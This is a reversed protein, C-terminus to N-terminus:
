DGIYALDFDKSILGIMANDTLLIQSAEEVTTVKHLSVNNLIDYLKKDPSPNPVKVAYKAYPDSDDLLIMVNLHNLDIVDSLKVGVKGHGENKLCSALTDGNETWNRNDFNYILYRTSFDANTDIRNVLTAIADQESMGEEVAHVVAPHNRLTHYINYDASDKDMRVWSTVPSYKVRGNEDTSKLIKMKLCYEPWEPAEYPMYLNGDADFDAETAAQNVDTIVHVEPLAGNGDWTYTSTTEGAINKRVNAVLYYRGQEEPAIPLREELNKALIDVRASVADTLVKVDFANAVKRLDSPQVRDYLSLVGDKEVADNNYFNNMNIDLIKDGLAEFSLDDNTSIFLLEDQEGNDKTLVLSADEDFSADKIADSIGKIKENNISFDIKGDDSSTIHISDDDSTFNIESEIRNPEAQEEPLAQGEYGSIVDAKGVVITAGNGDTPRVSVDGVIKGPDVMERGTQEDIYKIDFASMVNKAVIDDTNALLHDHGDITAQIHQDIDEGSHLGRSMVKLTDKSNGLHITESKGYVTQPIEDNKFSQVVENMEPEDILGNEITEDTYEFGIKNAYAVYNENYINKNRLYDNEKDAKDDALSQLNDNSDEIDSQCNEIDTNVQAFQENLSNIRGEITEKERLAEFLTTNEFSSVASNAEYVASLKESQADVLVQHNSVITPKLENTIHDKTLTCYAVVSEQTSGSLIDLVNIMKDFANLADEYSVNNCNMNKLFEYDENNQLFSDNFDDDFYLTEDLATQLINADVIENDVLAQAAELEQQAAQATDRLGNLTENLGAINNNALDLSANAEQKQAEIESKTTNLNELEEELSAHNTNAAEIQSDLENIERVTDQLSNYDLILHNYNAFLEDYAEAEQKAAIYEPNQRFGIDSYDEVHSIIGRLHGEEDKIGIGAPAVIVDNFTKVGSIDQNTSRNVYGDTSLNIDSLNALYTEVGDIYVKFHKYEKDFVNKSPDSKTKILLQSNINGLAISDENAKELLIKGDKSKILDTTVGKNAIVDRSAEVDTRSVLRLADILRSAKINKAELSSVKESIVESTGAEIRGAVVSETANINKSNVSVADVDSLSKIKGAILQGNVDLARTYTDGEFRASGRSTINETSINESDINTSNLNGADVTGAEVTTSNVTQANVTNTNETSSNVTNVNVTGANLADTNISRSSLRELHSIKTDNNGEIEVGDLNIKTNKFSTLDATISAETDEGVLEIDNTEINALKSNGESKLDYEDTFQVNGITAHKGSENRVSLANDTSDVNISVANTFLAKSNVTLKVQDSEPIVISKIEMDAIKTIVKDTKNGNNKNVLSIGKVYGDDDLIFELGYRWGLGMPNGNLSTLGDCVLITERTQANVIRFRSHEDDTKDVDIAFQPFSASLNLKDNDTIELNVAPTTGEEEVVSLNLKLDEITAVHKREAETIRYSM